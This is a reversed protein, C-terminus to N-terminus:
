LCKVISFSLLFNPLTRLAQVPLDGILTLTNQFVRESIFRYISHFYFFLVKKTQKIAQASNYFILEKTLKKQNIEIEKIRKDIM